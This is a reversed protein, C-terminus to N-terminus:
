NQYRNPETRHQDRWSTSWTMNEQFTRSANRLKEKMVRLAVYKRLRLESDKGSDQAKCEEEGAQSLYVAAYYWDVLAGVEAPRSM